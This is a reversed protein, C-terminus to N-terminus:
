LVRASFSGGPNYFLPTGILWADLRRMLYLAGCVQWDCQKKAQNRRLRRNVQEMM